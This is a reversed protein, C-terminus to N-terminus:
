AREEVPEVAMSVDVTGLCGDRWTRILADCTAPWREADYGVVLAVDGAFTTM